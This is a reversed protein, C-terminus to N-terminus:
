EAIQGAGARLATRFSRAGGSVRAGAIGRSRSARVWSEVIRVRGDTAARFNDAIAVGDGTAAAPTAGPSSRAASAAAPRLDDAKGPRLVTRQLFRNRRQQRALRGTGALCCRKGFIKQERKLVPGTNFASRCHIM